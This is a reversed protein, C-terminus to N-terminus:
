REGEPEPARYHTSIAGHVDGVVIVSGNTALAAGVHHGGHTPFEAVLKAIHEALSTNAALLARLEAELVRRSVPDEPSAAVREVAAAAAPHTEVSPRLSGWIAKVREWAADGVKGGVTQLAKDGAKVLLPLAPALMSALSGALIAIDLM